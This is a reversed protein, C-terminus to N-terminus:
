EGLKKILEDFQKRNDSLSMVTNVKIIQKELAPCGIDETLFQHHAHSRRGKDNLPNNKKLEELVGPALKKYINNNIFNGVHSPIQKGEEIDYMKRYSEFFKRPFRRTWPLLEQSIFAELVKQLADKEREYQYGTAEDVLAQIGIHALARILIDSRKAVEIQDKTLVGADRAKLYVNCVQPILDAKYGNTKGATPHMFEILSGGASLDSSLFPILNSAALFRPIQGGREEFEIVAKPKKGASGRSKGLASFMSTQSIVRTGDELVACSIKIDGIGMEGVHTAKPLHSYCKRSSRAKASIEKRREPSLKAARAKGGLSGLSQFSNPNTNCESGSM